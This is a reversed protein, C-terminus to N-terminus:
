GWHSATEEVGPRDDADGAGRNEAAFALEARVSGM